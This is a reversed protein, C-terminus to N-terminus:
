NIKLWNLLSLIIKEVFPAMFIRYEYAFFILGSGEKVGCVFILQFCVMPRFILALVILTKPSSM